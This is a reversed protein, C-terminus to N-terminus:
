FKWFLQKKTKKIFNLKKGAYLIVTIIVILVIVTFFLTLSRKYCKNDKCRKNSCEYDSECEEGVDKRPKWENDLCYQDNSITGYDVCEGNLECGSKEEYKCKSNECDDTTCPNNDDCENDSVCGEKRICENKECVFGSDCGCDNCCSSASEDEQCEDDFNCTSIDWNRGLEIDLPNKGSGYFYFDVEDNGSDELITKVVIESGDELKDSNGEILNNTIHNNVKFKASEGSVILLEIIYIGNDTEYAKAEGEELSDKIFISQSASTISALLIIIILWNM